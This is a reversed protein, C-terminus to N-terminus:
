KFTQIIAVQHNCKNCAFKPLISGMLGMCIDCIRRGQESRILKHNNIKIVRNGAHVYNVHSSLHFTVM